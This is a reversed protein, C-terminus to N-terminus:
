KVPSGTFYGEPNGEHDLGACGGTGSLVTNDSNVTVPDMKRGSVGELVKRM